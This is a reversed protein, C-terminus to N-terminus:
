KDEEVKILECVPLAHSMDKDRALSSDFATSNNLNDRSAFQGIRVSGAPLKWAAIGVIVSDGQQPAKSDLNAPITAGAATNETPQYSDEAVVVVAKLDRILGAYRKQAWQSVPRIKPISDISDGSGPSFPRTSFGATLQVISLRTKSIPSNPLLL